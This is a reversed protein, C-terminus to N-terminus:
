GVYSAQPDSEDADSAAQPAYEIRPRGRLARGPVNVEVQVRLSRRKEAQAGPRRSADLKKNDIVYNVNDDAKVPSQHGGHHERFGRRKPPELAALYTLLTRARAHERNQCLRLAGTPGGPQWHKPPTM